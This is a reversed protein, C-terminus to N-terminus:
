NYHKLTTILNASKTKQNARHACMDFHEWYKSKQLHRLWTWKRMADPVISKRQCRDTQVSQMYGLVTEESASLPGRHSVRGAISEELKATFGSFVVCGLTRMVEIKPPKCSKTDEDGQEETQQTTMPVYIDHKTHRHEYAGLCEWVFIRM